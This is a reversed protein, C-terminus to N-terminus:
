YLQIHVLHYLGAIQSWHFLDSVKIFVLFYIWYTWQQKIQSLFFTFMAKFNLQTPLSLYLKFYEFLLICYLLCFLQITDIWTDIWIMMLIEQFRILFVVESHYTLTIGNLYFNLDCSFMSCGASLHASLALVYSQAWTPCCASSTILPCFRAGMRSALGQGTETESSWRGPPHLVM